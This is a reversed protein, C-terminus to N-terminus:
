LDLCMSMHKHVFYTALFYKNNMQQQILIMLGNQLRFNGSSRSASVLQWRVYIPSISGLIYAKNQLIFPVIYFYGYM